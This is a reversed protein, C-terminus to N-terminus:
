WNIIKVNDAVKFPNQPNIHDFFMVGKLHDIEHQVVIAQYNRFTLHKTEGDTNQYTITVKAPRPVYGEIERDVSLCGEGEALAVQKASETEIVPNILVDEFVIENNMDPILVATMQKSVDIQPAALGVGSRLKYKKAIEEDQSNKLFEMLEKATKQDESSLPFDVKAAKKRLTPHGERIIDKMLIM